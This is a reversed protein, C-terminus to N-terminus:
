QNAYVKRLLNCEKVITYYGNIYLGRESLNKVDRDTLLIRYTDAARAVYACGWENLENDNGELTMDTQNYITKLLWYNVKPNSRDTKLVIELKDGEVANTFKEAEVVIGSSWDGFECNGKWINKSEWTVDNPMLYIDRVYIVTTDAAQLVIEDVSRVDQGDFCCTLSTIGPKGCTKLNDSVVVQTTVTTPQSFEFTISEYNSMNVAMNHESFSGVLGGWPLASYTLSGDENYEIKEYINWTTKFKDIVDLDSNEDSKENCSFLSTLAVM